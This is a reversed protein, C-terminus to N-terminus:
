LKSQKEALKKAKRQVQRMAFDLLIEESGGPIATQRVDRYLREVIKGKGEKVIGSGGFIQVAERACYEFCKSAQVKLLACQGGLAHDAVGKSFQFAIKEVNDQLAEIQRVMEALKFRIIQHSILKKGFTERQMAYKFAETYCVRAVRATSAAIVFREHNFNTMIYMFGANEEGILNKAPVKVDEFIIFTTSHCSDFQTQMKRVNVGPSQRDVLLLSLGMYGEGGTRCALTFYDATMGGTIWKKSGNVIYFEGSPDLVATTKLNAVDSGANPESIALCINKRGQVVDQVVLNKIYDSAANIIPPLAMSNIGLQGLVQGGAVRAMEDLMILEYFADFDDPKTGGLAKDYIVGSIGADFIERHLSMPYGKPDAIWDDVNPKVRKEVFARVKARFAKHGDHYYPSHFGQYWSPEAFPVQDGFRDKLM